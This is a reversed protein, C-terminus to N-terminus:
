YTLSVKSISRVAGRLWEIGDLYDALYCGIGLITEPRWSLAARINVPNVCALSEVSAPNARAAALDSLQVMGTTQKGATLTRSEGVRALLFGGM